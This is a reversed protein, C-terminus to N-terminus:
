STPSKKTKRLKGRKSTMPLPHKAPVAKSAPSDTQTNSEFGYGFLDELSVILVTSPPFSKTAPPAAAMRKLEMEADTKKESNQETSSVPATSIQAMPNTPQALISGPQPSTATSAAAGVQGALDSGETETENEENPVPVTLLINGDDIPNNPQVVASDDSGTSAALITDVNSSSSTGQQTTNQPTAESSSFLDILGLRNTSRDYTLQLVRNVHSSNERISNWDQINALSSVCFLHLHHIPHSESEPEPELKPWRNALERGMVIAKRLVTRVIGVGVRDAYNKMEMTVFMQCDAKRSLAEASQVLPESITDKDEESPNLVSVWDPICQGDMEKSNELDPLSGTFVDPHCRFQPSIRYNAAIVYPVLQEKIEGLLDLSEPDWQIGRLKDLSLESVFNLLFTELKDGNPGAAASAKVFSGAILIELKDGSTIEKGRKFASTFSAKNFLCEVFLRFSCAFLDQNPVDGSFYKLVNLKADLIIDYNKEARGEIIAERLEKFVNLENFDNENVMKTWDSFFIMNTLEDTSLDLYVTRPKFIVSKRQEDKWPRYWVLRKDQYRKFINRVIPLNEYHETEDPLLHALHKHIMEVSCSHKGNNYVHFKSFIMQYYGEMTCLHRLYPKEDVLSKLTSELAMKLADPQDADIMGLEILFQELIGPRKTYLSLWSELYRFEEPITKDVTELTAPPLKLVIRCWINSGGRSADFNSSSNGVMNTVRTNTGLLVPTLDPIVRIFNRLFLLTYENTKTFNFEDLCILAPLDMSHKDIFEKLLLPRIKRHEFDSDMLQNGSRKLLLESIVALTAWPFYSSYQEIFERSIIVEKKLKAKIYKLVSEEGRSKKLTLLVKSDLGSNDLFGNADEEFDDVTMVYDAINKKVKRFDSTIASLVAKSIPEVAKYIMQKGRREVCPQSDLKMPHKSYQDFTYVLQTKGSWSPGSIFVFSGDCSSKQIFTMLDLLPYDETTLNIQVNSATMMYHRLPGLDDPETERKPM